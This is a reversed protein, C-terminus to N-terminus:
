QVIKRETAMGLSNSSGWSKVYRTKVHQVLDAHSKDENVNSNDHIKRESAFSGKPNTNGMVCPSLRTSIAHDHAHKREGPHNAVTQDQTLPEGELVDYGGENKNPSRTHNMRAVATNDLQSIGSEPYGKGHHRMGNVVPM